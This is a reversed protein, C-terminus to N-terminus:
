APPRTASVIRRIGALDKRFGVDGYGRAELLRAVADYQGDGIELALLGGPRLWRPAGDAIRRILDLGDPGAKLARPDEHLRIDPALINWEADAVYPPNACIADFAAEEPPLADFLDGEYVRVRSELGHREVNRRALAVAAPQIDTAVGRGAPANAAIAVAVCGTGTCLDLFRAPRDGIFALVAEVLHETEPRPVLIPRQTYVPLSFFEWEGLIHAVPEHAKRREVLSEFEPAPLDEHLRALLASRTLGLAHALLLEADLRPSESVHALIRTAAALRQALTPPM